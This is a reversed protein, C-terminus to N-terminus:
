ETEVLQPIIYKQVFGEIDVKEKLKTLASETLQGLCNILVDQKINLKEKNERKDDEMYVSRVGAMIGPIIVEELMNEEIFKEKAKDFVNESVESISAGIKNVKEALRKKTKGKHEKNEKCHIHKKSLPNLYLIYNYKIGHELNDTIIEFLMDRYLIYPLQHRIKRYTEVAKLEKFLAKRIGEVYSKPKEVKECNDVDIDRGTLDRYIRRLMINHKKKDDKISKIIEKQEKTPAMDVLCDYFMEDEKEGSVTRKILKLVDNLAKKYFDAMVYPGMNNEMHNRIYAM